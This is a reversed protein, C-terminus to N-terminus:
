GAGQKEKSRGGFFSEIDQRLRDAAKLSPVVM